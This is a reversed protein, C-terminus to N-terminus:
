NWCGQWPCPCMGSILNDLAGGLRAKFVELSLVDVAERPFKWHRVSSM